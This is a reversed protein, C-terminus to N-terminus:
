LSPSSFFYQLIIEMIRQVDTNVTTKL